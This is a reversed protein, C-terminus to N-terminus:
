ALRSIGVPPWPTRSTVSEPMSFRTESEGRVYARVAASEILEQPADHRAYHCPRCLLVLDEALNPTRYRVHHVLEGREDCAPRRRQPGLEDPPSLEVRRGWDRCRGDRRWVGVRIKLSVESGAPRVKLPSGVLYFLTHGQLSRVEVFFPIGDAWVVIVAQPRMTERMRSDWITEERM